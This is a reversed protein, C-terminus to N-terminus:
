QATSVWQFIISLYVTSWACKIRRAKKQEPTRGAAKNESKRISKTKGIKGAELFVSSYFRFTTEGGEARMAGYSPSAWTSHVPISTRLKHLGRFSYIYLILVRETKNKRRTCSRVLGQRSFIIVNQGSCGLRSWFAFNVGRVLCRADGDM